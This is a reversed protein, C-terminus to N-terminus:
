TTSKSCTQSRAAKWISSKGDQAQRPKVKQPTKHHLTLLIAARGIAQIFVQSQVQYEACFCAHWLRQRTISATIARIAEFGLAFCVSCDPLSVRPQPSRERAAREASGHVEIVLLESLHSLRLSGRYDSVCRVGFDIDDFHQACGSTRRATHFPM